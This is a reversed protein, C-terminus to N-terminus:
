AAEREELVQALVARSADSGCWVVSKGLFMPAIKVDSLEHDAVMRKVDGMQREAAYLYHM